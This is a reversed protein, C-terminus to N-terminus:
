RADGGGLLGRLERLEAQVEAAMDHAAAATVPPVVPAASTATPAFGPAVFTAPYLHTPPVPTAAPLPSQGYWPQEAAPRLAPLGPGCGKWAHVTATILYGLVVTDGILSEWTNANKPILEVVVFEAVMAGVFAAVWWWARATRRRRAIHVAPVWGCIGVTWFPIATWLVRATM